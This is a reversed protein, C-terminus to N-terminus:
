TLCASSVSLLSFNAVARLLEMKEYVSFAHRLVPDENGKFVLPGPLLATSCLPGQVNDSLPTGGYGDENQVLLEGSLLIILLLFQLPGVAL